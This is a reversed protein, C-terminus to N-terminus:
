EGEKNARKCYEPIALRKIEPGYFPCESGYCEPFEIHTTTRVGDGSREQHEIPRYPCKM